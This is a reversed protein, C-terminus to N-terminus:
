RRFGAVTALFGLLFRLHRTQIGLMASKYWYKIAIRREGAKLGCYAYSFHASQLAERIEAHELAAPRESIKELMKVGFYSKKLDMSIREATSAKDAVSFLSVDLQDVYAHSQDHILIDGQEGLLWVFYIDERGLLSEDFLFRRAISVDIVSTSMSPTYFPGTFEAKRRVFLPKGDMRDYSRLLTDNIRDPRRSPDHFRSTWGAYIVLEPSCAKHQMFCELHDQSWVDDDDLFAVYAGHAEVIGRNRAASVGVKYERVLRIPLGGKEQFARVIPETAPDGGNDVVILERPSCGQGIVSSIARPLVDARHYTTIVASVDCSVEPVGTSVM